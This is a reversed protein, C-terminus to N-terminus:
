LKCVTFYSVFDGGQVGNGTPFKGAIFDGDLAKGGACTGGAGTILSGRLTVEVEGGHRKIKSHGQLEDVKWHESVHFTVRSGGNEEAYVIMPKGEGDREAPVYRKIRYGTDEDEDIVAVLFTSQNITDPEMKQDFHVTLGQNMIASFEAWSAKKAHQAYWSFDIIHPLDGHYCDILDYLLQNNYVLKRRSCPDCQAVAGERMTVQALVLCCDGECEHCGESLERCLYEHVLLDPDHEKNYSLPCLKCHPDDCSVDAEHRLRLKFGDRIRNFDSREEGGCAISSIQVPETKCEHYELCLVLKADENQGEGSPPACRPEAQELKVIQEECVLLEHGCCDLALGPAVVLGGKEPKYEVKLGCVVGWGSVMRNMLWRKENFYRQEAFFDRVTMLKSYFYNNREFHPTACVGCRHDKEKEMM